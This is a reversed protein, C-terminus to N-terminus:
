GAHQLPHATGAVPLGVVLQEGPDASAYRADCETGGEDDPERALGVGVERLELGEDLVGAEIVDAHEGIRVLFPGAGEAQGVVHGRAHLALPAVRQHRSLLADHRGTLLPAEPGLHLHHNVAGGGVVVEDKLPPRLTLCRIDVRDDVQGVAVRAEILRAFEDTRLDDVGALVVQHGHRDARRRWPKSGGECPKPSTEGSRKARLRVHRDGASGSWLDSKKIYQETGAELFFGLPGTGVKQIEPANVACLSLSSRRRPTAARTASLQPSSIKSTWSRRSDIPVTSRTIM